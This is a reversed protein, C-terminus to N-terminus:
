DDGFGALVLWILDVWSWAPNREQAPLMTELPVKRRDAAYAYDARAKDRRGIRKYAEARTNYAGLIGPDLRIAETCAAIAGNYDGGGALRSGEFAKQIADRRQEKTGTSAAVQSARAEAGQVLISKNTDMEWILAGEMMNVGEKSLADLVVQNASM